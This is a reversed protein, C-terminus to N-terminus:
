RRNAGPLALRRHDRARTRCRRSCYRMAVKALDKGKPRFKGHCQACAQVAAAAAAPQPPVQRAHCLSGPVRLTVLGV